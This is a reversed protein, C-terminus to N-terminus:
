VDLEMPDKFSNHDPECLKLVTQPVSCSARLLVLLDLTIYHYFVVPIAVVLRELIGSVVELIQVFPEAKQFLQDVLVVRVVRRFAAAAAM